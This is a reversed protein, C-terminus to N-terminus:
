DRHSLAITQRHRPKNEYRGRMGEIWEETFVIAKM